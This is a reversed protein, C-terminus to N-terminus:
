TPRPDAPRQDPSTASFPMPAMALALAPAGLDAEWALDIETTYQAGPAFRMPERFRHMSTTPGDIDLRVSGISKIEPISGDDFFARLIAQYHLTGATTQPPLELTFGDFNSSKTSVQGWTRPDEGIPLWAPSELLIFSTGPISSRAPDFPRSRDHSGIARGIERWAPNLDLFTRSAKFPGTQESNDMVIVGGPRLLKAAM